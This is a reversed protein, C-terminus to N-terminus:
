GKMTKVMFDMMAPPVVTATGSKDIAIVPLLLNNSSSDADPIGMIFARMFLTKNIHTIMIKSCGAISFFASPAVYDITTDLLKYRISNSTIRETKIIRSRWVTEENVLVSEILPDDDVNNMFSVAIDNRKNKHYVSFRCDIIDAYDNKSPNVCSISVKPSGINIKNSMFNCEKGLESVSITDNKNKKSM